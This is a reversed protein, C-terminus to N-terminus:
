ETEIWRESEISKDKNEKSKSKESLKKKGKKQGYEREIREKSKM